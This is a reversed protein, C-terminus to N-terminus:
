LEQSKSQLSKTMKYKIRLLREAISRDRHPLNNDTAKWSIDTYFEHIQYESEVLSFHVFDMLLHM